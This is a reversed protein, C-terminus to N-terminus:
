SNIKHVQDGSDGGAAGGGGDADDSQGAVAAESGTVPYEAGPVALGKGVLGGVFHHEAFHQVLGSGDNVLPQGDAEAATVAVGSLVGGLKVAVTGRHHEVSQEGGQEGGSGPLGQRSFKGLPGEEVAFHIQRLCFGDNVENVGLGGGGRFVGGGLQVAPEVATQLRNLLSKDVNGAPKVGYHVVRVLVNLVDLRLLDAGGQLGGFGGQGVQQAGGPPAPHQLVADAGGDYAQGVRSRSMSVAPM